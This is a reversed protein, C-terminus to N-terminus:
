EQFYVPKEHPVSTLGMNKCKVTGALCNHSRVRKTEIGECAFCAKIPRCISPITKRRHIYRVATRVRTRVMFAVNPLAPSLDWGSACLKYRIIIPRHRFNTNTSKQLFCFLFSHLHKSTPQDKSRFFVLQIQPASRCDKQRVSSWWSVMM